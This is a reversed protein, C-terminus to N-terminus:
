KREGILDIMLAEAGDERGWRTVGREVAATTMKLRLRM